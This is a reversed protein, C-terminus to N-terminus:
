ETHQATVQDDAQRSGAGRHVADRSQRDAQLGAAARRHAAPGRPRHQERTRQAIGAQLRVGPEKASTGPRLGWFFLSLGSYFV